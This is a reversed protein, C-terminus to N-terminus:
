FMASLVKSRAWDWEVSYAEGFRGSGARFDGVLREPRAPRLKVTTEGDDDKKRRLRLIIGARLLQPEAGTTDLKDFFWIQRKRDPNRGLGFSAVAPGLDGSLTCKIEVADVPTTSM